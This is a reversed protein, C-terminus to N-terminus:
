GAVNSVMNLFKFESFLPTFISPYNRELRRKASSINRYVSVDCSSCCFASLFVLMKTLSFVFNMSIYDVMHSFHFPGPCPMDVSSRHDECTVVQLGHSLFLCCHLGAQVFVPAARYPLPCCLVIDHQLRRGVVPCLPQSIIIIIVMAVPQVKAEESIEENRLHELLSVGM